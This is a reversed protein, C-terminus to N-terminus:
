YGYDKGLDVITGNRFKVEVSSPNQFEPKLERLNTIEVMNGIYWPDIIFWKGNKNVEAWAHDWGVFHAQRTSYGASLM